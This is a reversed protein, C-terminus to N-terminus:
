MAQGIACTYCSGCRTCAPATAPSSLIDQLKPAYTRAVILYRYYHHNSDRHGDRLTTTTTAAAVMMKAVDNNCIHLM